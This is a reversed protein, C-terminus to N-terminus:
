VTPAIPSREPPTTVKAKPELGTLMTMHSPLTWPSAALAQDFVVAETEAFADLVPSVEIPGGTNGYLGLRDPRLTDLSILVVTRPGEARPVPLPEQRVVPAEAGGGSPESPDSCGAPLLVSALAFTAVLLRTM